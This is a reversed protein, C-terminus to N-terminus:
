RGATPGSGPPGTRGREEERRPAPRPWPPRATRSIDHPPTPAGRDRGAHRGAAALGLVILVLILILPLGVAFVVGGSYALSTASMAALFGEM